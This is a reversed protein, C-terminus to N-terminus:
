GAKPFFSEVQVSIGPPDFELMGESLIRTQLRGRVNREHHTVTRRDPRVILYHRLSPLRFYHPLTLFKTHPGHLLSPLLGQM